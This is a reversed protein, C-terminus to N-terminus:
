RTTMRQVQDRCNNDNTQQFHIELVDSMSVVNLTLYFPDSQLYTDVCLTVHREKALEQSNLCFNGNAQIQFQRGHRWTSPAHGTFSMPDWHFLKQILFIYSYDM